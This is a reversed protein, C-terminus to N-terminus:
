KVLVSPIEKNRLVKVKRDIIQIPQEDYTINERLDISETWMPRKGERSRDLRLMSIHFVPHVGALQSPLELEYAVKGIRKKVRFPGM